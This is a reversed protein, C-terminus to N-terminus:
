WKVEIKPRDKRDLWPKIPWTKAHSQVATKLIDVLLISRPKTGYHKTGHLVMSDDFGFLEGNVWEHKEGELDFVCGPADDLVLHLRLYKYDLGWHHNLLSGPTCINYQVSGLIDMNETIWNGMVPMRKLREERLLFTPGGKQFDPWYLDDAEQPDLVTDRIFTVMSKFMGSYVMGNDQQDLTIHNAKTGWSKPDFLGNPGIHTPYWNNFEDRIKEWNDTLYDLTPNGRNFYIYQSQTTM